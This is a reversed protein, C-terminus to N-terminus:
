QGGGGARVEPRILQVFEMIEKKFVGRRLPVARQAVLSYFNERPPSGAPM